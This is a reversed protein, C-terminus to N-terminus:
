DEILRQLAEIKQGPAVETSQEAVEGFFPPAHLQGGVLKVLGDLKRALEHHKLVSSQDV